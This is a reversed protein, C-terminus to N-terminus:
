KLEGNESQCLCSKPNISKFSGIILDMKLLAVKLLDKSKRAWKKFPREPREFFSSGPGNNKVRLFM